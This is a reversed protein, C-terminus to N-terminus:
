KKNLQLFNFLISKDGNDLTVEIPFKKKIPQLLTLDNFKDDNIFISYIPYKNKLVQVCNDFIIKGLCM